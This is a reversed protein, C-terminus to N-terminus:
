GTGVVGVDRGCVWARCVRGVTSGTRADVPVVSLSNDVAVPALNDGMEGPGDGRIESDGYGLGGAANWGWCKVTDNDLLACTDGTGATIATATRGTGLNIPPLFDGMEGPEDGRSNTDGYGLQGFVNIGWCKVAGTTSCRM